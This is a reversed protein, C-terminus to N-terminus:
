AHRHCGGGHDGGHRPEGHHGGCADTVSLTPLASERVARLAEDVRTARTVLVPIGASLLKAVAGRGAGNCVVAEVRGRLLEVPACAHPAHPDKHVVECGGTETDVLTLFPARGLHGAIAADLGLGSETPICIKM